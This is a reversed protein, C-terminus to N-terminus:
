TQCPRKEMTSYAFDWDIGSSDVVESAIEVDFPSDWECEDEDWKPESEHWMWWGDGDMALWGAWSPADEWSPKSM